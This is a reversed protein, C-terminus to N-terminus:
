LSPITEIMKGNENVTNGLMDVEVTVKYVHSRYKPNWFATRRGGRISSIPMYNTLHTMFLIAM